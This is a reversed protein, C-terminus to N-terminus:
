VGRIEAIREIFRRCQLVYIYKAYRSSRLAPTLRSVEVKGVSARKCPEVILKGRQESPSSLAPGVVVGHLDGELLLHRTAQLEIQVVGVAGREVDSRVCLAHAFPSTQAALNHIRPHAILQAARRIKVKAMLDIGVPDPTQGKALTARKGAVCSLCQVRNDAAPLERTDGTPRAL